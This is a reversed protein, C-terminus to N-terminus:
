RITTPPVCQLHHLSEVTSLVTDTVNGLDLKVSGNRDLDTSDTKRDKQRDALLTTVNTYV